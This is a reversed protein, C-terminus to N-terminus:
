SMPPKPGATVRQNTLENTQPYSQSMPPKNAQEAAQQSMPLEKAQEYSIPKNATQQSTPPENAQRRSKLKDTAEVARQSMPPEKDRQRSQDAAGQNMPPEPKDAQQCTPKNACQSPLENSTPM